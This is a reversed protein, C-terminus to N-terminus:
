PAWYGVVDIVVHVAGGPMTALVALKGTGDSSLALIANNARTAGASFNLTSTPPVPYNGPFLALYGGASPTITTVNVAVSRANAPIGCAGAATVLLPVGSALPAGARTDLLRCPAVTYFDTGQAALLNLALLASDAQGSANTIRLVVSYLGPALGTTDLWGSAGSVERVLPLGQLVRWTYVLPPQGKGSGSLQVLQGVEATAVGITASLIAPMPDLVTVTRTISTCADRNCVELTVQHEGPTSFTTVPNQVSSVSQAEVLVASALLLAGGLAAKVRPM